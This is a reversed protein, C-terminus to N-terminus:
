GMYPVESQIIDIKRVNVNKNILLISLAEKMRDFDATPGVIIGKIYKVPIKQEVYPVILGAKERFLIHTSETAVVRFEQEFEFSKHKIYSGVKRYILNLVLITTLRNAERSLQIDDVYLKAITAKLPLTNDKQCYFCDQGRFERQLAEEDFVIAIGNGNKAYLGWMPLSDKARSLSFLYPYGEHILSPYTAGGEYHMRDFKRISPNEIINEVREAIPIGQEEEYECIAKRCLEEGQLFESRDNLFHCHTAWMTLNPNTKADYDKLMGLLGAGTTYHYLEAM